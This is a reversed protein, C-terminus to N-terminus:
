LGSSGKRDSRSNIVFDGSLVKKRNDGDNTKAASELQPVIGNKTVSLPKFYRDSVKERRESFFGGLRKCDWHVPIDGLWEIGTTKYESYAKYKM